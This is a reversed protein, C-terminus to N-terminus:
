EFRGVVGAVREIWEGAIREGYEADHTRVQLSADMQMHWSAVLPSMNSSFSHEESQHRSRSKDKYIPPLPNSLHTNSFSLFTQRPQSLQHNLRLLV